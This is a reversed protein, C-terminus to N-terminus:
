CDPCSKHASPIQMHCSTCVGSPALTILELARALIQTPAEQLATRAKLALRETIEPDALAPPKGVPAPGGNNRGHTGPAMPGRAHSGFSSKGDRYKEYNVRNTAYRERERVMGMVVSAPLDPHASHTPRPTLNKVGGMQPGRTEALGTDALAQQLTPM